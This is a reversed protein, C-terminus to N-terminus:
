PRCSVLALRRELFLWVSSRAVGPPASITCLKAEVFPRGTSFGTPTSSWDMPFAGDWQEPRPQAGDDVHRDFHNQLGNRLRYERWGGHDWLLKWRQGPDTGVWSQRWGHLQFHAAHHTCGDADNQLGHWM